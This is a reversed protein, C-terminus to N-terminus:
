SKHSHASRYPANLPTNYQVQMFRLSESVSLIIWILAFSSSIDKNLM